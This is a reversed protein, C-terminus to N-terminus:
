ADFVANDRAKIRRAPRWRMRSTFEEFLWLSGHHKGNTASAPDYSGDRQGRRKGKRDKRLRGLPGLVARRLKGRAAIQLRQGCRAAIEGGAMGADLAIRRGGGREIAGRQAGIGLVALQQIAGEDGRNGLAIDVVGHLEGLLDQGDVLGVADRTKDDAYLVQLLLFVAAACSLM